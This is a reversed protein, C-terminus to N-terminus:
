CSQPATEDRREDRREDRADCATNIETGQSQTFEQLRVVVRTLERVVAHLLQNLDQKDMSMLPFSEAYTNWQNVRLTNPAQQDRSAAATSLQDKLMEKPGKADHLTQLLETRLAQSERQQQEM